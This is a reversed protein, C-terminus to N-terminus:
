DNATERVQCRNITATLTALVHQPRHDIDMDTFRLVRYGAVKLTRDRHADERRTRPREHGPGDTEVVLHLAPWHFDVELGAVITNSLPQEIGIQEVLARFAREVRSKTGASGNKNHRLAEELVDLHHRGNARAMAQRTAALSFRSRFDAEHIVNALELADLVETLDVLTRAVTTVPIGRYVTVDRPDLNRTRHLRVGPQPSRRGPVVVDILPARYRRVRWLETASLLGLAAGDGYALVAGHWRAERSLVAHGLAYVGPFVRHLSGKAARKSIAGRSLGAALLQAFTILGHQRAGVAALVTDVSPTRGILEGPPFKGYM